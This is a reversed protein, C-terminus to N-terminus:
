DGHTSKDYLMPMKEKREFRIGCDGYSKILIWEFNYIYYSKWRMRCKKRFKILINM